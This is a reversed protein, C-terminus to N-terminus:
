TTGEVKERREIIRYNGHENEIYSRKDVKADRLATPDSKDYYTLDEWGYPPYFGQLVYLYTYKNAPM